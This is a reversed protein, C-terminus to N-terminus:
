MYTYLVEQMPDKHQNLSTQNDVMYRGLLVHFEAQVCHWAKSSEANGSPHGLVFTLRVSHSPVCRKRGMHETHLGELGEVGGEPKM